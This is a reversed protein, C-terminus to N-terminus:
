MPASTNTITTSTVPTSSTTTNTKTDKTETQKITNTASPKEQTEKIIQKGTANKVAQRIDMNAQESAVTVGQLEKAKTLAAGLNGADILAKIESVAINVKESTKDVESLITSITQKFISQETNISQGIASTGSAAQSDLSSTTSTSVYIYQTNTTIELTKAGNLLNAKEQGEMSGILKRVEASEGLAGNADSLISVIKEEVMGQASIRQEDNVAGEVAVKVVDIGVEDVAQKVAVVAKTLTPNNAVGVSDAVNKLTESIETTAKNVEKAQRSINKKEEPSYAHVAIQVVGDVSSINEKLKQLGQETRRNKEEQSFKEKKTIIKIEEARRSAFKLQLSVNKQEDGTIDAFVIQTKESALKVHWLSDGPLSDSASASTIWGSTAMAFVLMSIFVPRIQFFVRKPFLARMRMTVQSFASKQLVQADITSTSQRITRLISDRTFVVWEQDPNIHGEVEKLVKLQEKLRKSM